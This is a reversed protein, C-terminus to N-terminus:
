SDEEDLHYELQLSFLNALSQFQLESILFLEQRSLILINQRDM